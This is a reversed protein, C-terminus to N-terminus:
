KITIIQSIALGKNNAVKAYIYGEKGTISYELNSISSQSKLEIANEVNLLDRGLISIKSDVDTAIRILGNKCSIDMQAGTSAYFAGRLIAKWIAVRNKAAAYVVIYSKNLYRWPESWASNHHFDDVGFGFVAGNFKNALINFARESGGSGSNLVEVFDVKSVQQIKSSPQYQDSWNPHAYSVFAGISKYFNIQENIDVSYNIEKVTMPLNYICLHHDNGGMKTDEVSRGMWIIGDVDPNGTIVNHDTFTYFDFKAVDRFIKAIETPSGSAYSDIHESFDTHNHMSGKLALTGKHKYPNSIIFFDNQTVCVTDKNFQSLNTFSSPTIQVEDETIAFTNNDKRCSSLGLFVLLLLICKKM